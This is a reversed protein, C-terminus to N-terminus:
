ILKFGILRNVVKGAAEVAAGVAERATLIGLGQVRRLVSLATNRQMDVLQMARASDITGEAYLRQADDFTQALKLLEPEAVARIASWREGLAKRAARIMTDTISPIDLSM